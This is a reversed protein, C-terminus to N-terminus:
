TKALKTPRHVRHVRVPRAGSDPPGRYEKAPRSGIDIPESNCGSDRMCSACTATSSGSTQVGGAVAESAAVVDFVVVVASAVVVVASAVAAVSAAAVSHSPAICARPSVVGPELTVSIPAGPCRPEAARRWILRDVPGTAEREAPAPMATRGGPGLPLREFM